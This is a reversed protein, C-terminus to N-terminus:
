GIEIEFPFDNPNKGYDSKLSSAAYDIADDFSSYFNKIKPYGYGEHEVVWTSYIDNIDRCQKKIRMMM